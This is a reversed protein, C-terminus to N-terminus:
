IIVYRCTAGDGSHTISLSNNSIAVTMSTANMLGTIGVSRVIYIGHTKTTETNYYGSSIFLIYISRHTFDLTITGTANAAVTGTM